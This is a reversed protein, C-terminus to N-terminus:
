EFSCLKLVGSPSCIGYTNCEIKGKGACGDIAEGCPEGEDVECAEATMCTTSIFYDWCEPPDEQGSIFQPVGAFVFVVFALARVRAQNRAFWTGSTMKWEEQTSSSGESSRKELPLLCCERQVRLLVASAIAILAGDHGM